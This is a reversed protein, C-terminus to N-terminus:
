AGGAPGPTEWLAATGDSAGPSSRPQRGPELRDVPREESTGKRADADDQGDRRELHARRRGLELDRDAHRGSLLGRRDCADDHGELVRGGSGTTACWVRADGDQSATVLRTGDPSFAAELLWDTHGRLDSVCSARRRM